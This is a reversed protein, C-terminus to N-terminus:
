RPEVLWDDGLRSIEEEVAKQTGTGVAMMAIVAAIGIVIGLISLGTRVVNKTLSHLAEAFITLLGM